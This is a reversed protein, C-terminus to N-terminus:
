IILPPEQFFQIRFLPGKFIRYQNGFHQPDKQQLLGFNTISIMRHSDTLNCKRLRPDHIEADSKQWFSRNWIGMAEGIFYSIVLPEQCTLLFESNVCVLVSGLATNFATEM